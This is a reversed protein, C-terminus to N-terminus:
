LFLTLKLIFPFNIVVEALEKAQKKKAAEQEFDVQLKSKPVMAVLM